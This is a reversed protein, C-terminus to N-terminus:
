VRAALITVGVKASPSPTSCDGFHSVFFPPWDWVMGAVFRRAQPTKARNVAGDDILIAASHKIAANRQAYGRSFVPRVVSRMQAFAMRGVQVGYDAFCEVARRWGGVVFDGMPVSIPVVVSCGIQAPRCWLFIVGVFATMPRQEGAALVVPGRKGFVINQGDARHVGSSTKCMAADSTQEVRGSRVHRLDDDSRVPLMQRLCPRM